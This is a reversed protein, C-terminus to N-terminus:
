KRKLTKGSGGRSMSQFLLKKTIKVAVIDIFSISTRKYSFDYNNRFTCANLSAAATHCCYTGKNKFQKKQFMMEMCIIKRKKCM